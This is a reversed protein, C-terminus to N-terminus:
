GLGTAGAGRSAGRAGAGGVLDGGGDLLRGLGLFAGRQGGSERAGLGAPDRAEAVDELPAALDIGRMRSSTSFTRSVASMPTRVLWFSSSSIRVESDRLSSASTSATQANRRRRAASIRDRSAGGTAQVAPLGNTRSMMPTLPLPLVVVM